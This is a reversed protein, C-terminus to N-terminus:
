GEPTVGLRIVAELAWLEDATPQVSPFLDAALKRAIRRAISDHGGRPQPADYSWAPVIGSLRRRRRRRSDAEAQRRCEPRHCVERPRGVGSQALPAGCM